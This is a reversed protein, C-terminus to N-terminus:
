HSDVPFSQSGYLLSACAWIGDFRHDSTFEEFLSCQIVLGTLESAREALSPSGDFETVQYGKKLFVLADRGSGCGADLIHAHDPLLPLFQDYLAQADVTVTSDFFSDSNREYFAITKPM